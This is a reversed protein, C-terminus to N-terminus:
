YPWKYGLSYISDSSSLVLLKSKPRVGLKLWKDPALKIKMTNVAPKEFSRTVMGESALNSWRELFFMWTYLWSSVICTGERCPDVRGVISAFLSTNCIDLCTLRATNAVAWPVHVVSLSWDTFFKYQLWYKISKWGM